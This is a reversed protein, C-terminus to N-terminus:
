SGGSEAVRVRPTEATSESAEAPEDQESRSTQAEAPPAGYIQAARRKLEDESAPQEQQQSAQGLGSREVIIEAARLRINPSAELEGSAIALITDTAKDLGNAFKNQAEELSRGRAEAIKRQFVSKKRWHHVTQKPRGLQQAVEFIRYGEIFLRLAERQDAHLREYEPDPREQDSEEAM